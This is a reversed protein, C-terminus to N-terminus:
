PACRFAGLQLQQTAQWDVAEWHAQEPPAPLLRVPTERQMHLRVVENTGLQRAIFQLEGSRNCGGSGNVGGGGRSTNEKKRLQNLAEVCQGSVDILDVDKSMWVVERNLCKIYHTFGKADNLAGYDELFLNAHKKLEAAKVVRAQQLMQGSPKPVGALVDHVRTTLVNYFDMFHQVCDVIATKDSAHTCVKDCVDGLYELITIAEEGTPSITKALKVVGGKMASNIPPIYCRLRAHLFETVEEAMKKTKIRSGIFRMWIAGCCRLLLHLICLYMEALEIFEFIPVVDHQHGLHLIRYERHQEPTKTAPVADLDAQSTWVKNCGPCWLVKVQKDNIMNLADFDSPDQAQHALHFCMKTTKRAFGTKINFFLSSPQLYWISFDWGKMGVVTQIWKMDGGGVFKVHVKRERRRGGGGGFDVFLGERHLRRFIVCLEHTNAKITDYDEKGEWIAATYLSAASGEFKALGLIKM